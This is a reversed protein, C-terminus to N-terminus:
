GNKREKRKQNALYNVLVLCPECFVGDINGETMKVHFFKTPLSPTGPGDRRFTEPAKHCCDCRRNEPTDIEKYTINPKIM